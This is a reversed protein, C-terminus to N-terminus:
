RNELGYKRWVEALAGSAAMRGLLADIEEASPRSGKKVLATHAYAQDMRDSVLLHGKLAPMAQLYHQLYSRTIIAVEGRELQLMRLSAENDDSFTIRYRKRLEAADANFNAFGYHYGTVAILSRQSLDDFFRQDRGPKNLAVYVEGDGQLYVKSAEVQQRDWGWEINEFLIMSFAGRALDAYRRKSSTPIFRFRYDQQFRNMAALLDYTVGSGKDVFPPFAYGGVWVTQPEPEALATPAGLLLCALLALRRAFTTVTCAM